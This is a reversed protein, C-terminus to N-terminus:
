IYIVVTSSCVAGRSYKSKVYARKLRRVVNRWINVTFLVGLVRELSYENIMWEEIELICWWGADRMGYTLKLLNWMDSREDKCDRPPRVYVQRTTQGSQMFPAKM